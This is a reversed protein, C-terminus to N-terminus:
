NQPFVISMNEVTRSQTAKIEGGAEFAPDISGTQRRVLRLSFECPQTRDLDPNNLANLLSFSYNEAGDDVASVTSSSFVTAGTTNRCGTTLVYDITLGARGPAWSLQM